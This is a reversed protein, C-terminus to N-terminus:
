TDAGSSASWQITSQMARREFEADTIPEAWSEALNSRDWGDPDIIKVGFLPEWEAAPRLITTM